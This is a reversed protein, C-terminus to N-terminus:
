RADDARKPKGATRPQASPEMVLKLSLASTDGNDLTFERIPGLMRQNQILVRRIRTRQEESLRDGYHRITENFRADVEQSEAPSLDLTDPQQAARSTPTAAPSSGRLPGVSALAATFAKKGFRRRSVEPKQEGNRM